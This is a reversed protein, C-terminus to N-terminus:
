TIEVHFLRGLKSLFQVELIVNLFCILHGIKTKNQEFIKIVIGSHRNIVFYGFQKIIAFCLIYVLPLEVCLFRYSIIVDSVTCHRTLHQLFDTIPLAFRILETLKLAVVRFSQQYIQGDMKVNTLIRCCIQEPECTRRQSPRLKM